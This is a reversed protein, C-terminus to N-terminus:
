TASGWIGLTEGRKIAEKRAEEPTFIGHEVALVIEEMSEKAIKVKEEPSKTMIPNFSIKMDDPVHGWCSIAMVPLLKELAPRLQREQQQAIMDYYNQLDAAGTANMGQPSRGFLITAPIEAAGAVDLMFSEKIETLGAFNFPHNELSDEAGMVHLGYSTRLENEHELTRFVAQKTRDSGYALDDGFHGMKLTFVNAQFILQSINACTTLYRSIEDMPHLLESAGWFNNKQAEAYPLERGIFRLIRSHHIRVTQIGSTGLNLTVDYYKPLGFDPDAINDELELSPVIGMTQDVIWLGQFCGAELQKLRLPEEMRNTQGQIVMIALSGGYLRAWRIANTMEQKISHRAELDTMLRLEKETMGTSLTYWGRTMDESPRDIIRKAIACETYVLTLEQITLGSEVFTGSAMLPSAAGLKALPNSYGDMGVRELTVPVAVVGQAKQPFLQHNEFVGREPDFTQSTKTPQHNIHNQNM